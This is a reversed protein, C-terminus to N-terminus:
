QSSVPIVPTLISLPVWQLGLNAEQFMPWLNFESIFWRISYLRRAPFGEVFGTSKRCHLHRRGSERSLCQSNERKRQSCQIQTAAHLNETTARPRGKNHLMPELAHPNPIQPVCAERTATYLSLQGTVHPIKTGWGRILGVDEASSPLNEVM